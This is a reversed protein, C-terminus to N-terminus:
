GKVNRRMDLSEVIAEVIVVRLIPCSRALLEQRNPNTIAEAILFHIFRVGRM